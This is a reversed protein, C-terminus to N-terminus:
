KPPKCLIQSLSVPDSIVADFRLGSILRAHINDDIIEAFTENKFQLDPVTSAVVCLAFLLDALVKVVEIQLGPIHEAEVEVLLLFLTDFFNLDAPLRKEFCRQLCDPM